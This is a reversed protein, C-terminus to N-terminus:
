IWPTIDLTEIWPKPLDFLEPMYKYIEAIAELCGTLRHTNDYRNFLFDKDNLSPITYDLYKIIAFEIDEKRYGNTLKCCRVLSFIADLDICYSVNNDWLGLKNQLKLTSDIVKEPFPIPHDLFEYIWYYHISGGLEQITLRRKIKHNWGIRWFGVEPDAKSDLWKFYWNFFDEHPYNEKGLTAFTAGIGGGRHSGPWFLLGWEPIKKLWHYVKGESNLSERIKLPYKPKAGLLNLASVAFATSHEKFHFGYNFIGEKFWGTTESQYSQINSIWDKRELDDHTNIYNEIENPITLNFVMDCLGYLSMREQDHEVSFRTPPKVLKFSDVWAYLNILFQDLNYRNM